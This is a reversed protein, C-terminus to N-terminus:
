SSWTALEQSQRQGHGRVEFPVTEPEMLALELAAASRQRQNGTSLVELAVQRSIPKGALHRVGSTFRSQNQEWWAAIRVPSPVPLNIETLPADDDGTEDAAIADDRELDHYSLDAGTIMMFAEGALRALAPSEMRRILWPLSAPDGIIGMGIVASRISEPKAVLASIWHRAEEPRMARLGIQLAREGFSDGRELWGRLEALGDSEGHLTLSSAAWFRCGPDADQLRERVRHLLDRRKLDGVARLARRSLDPDADLVAADLV